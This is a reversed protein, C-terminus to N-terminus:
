YVGADQCLLWAEQKHGPSGLTADIVGVVLKATTLVRPSCGFRIVVPTDPLYKALEAVDEDSLFGGNEIIRKINKM